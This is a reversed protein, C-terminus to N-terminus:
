PKRVFGMQDFHKDFSFAEKIGMDWMIVFSVCDTFSFDKDDYREFIDLAKEEVGRTVHAIKVVNSKRIKNSFNISARISIRFCILTLTEDLIYSTTVVEYRTRQLVQERFELANEHYQDSEDELAIFAGTDVFIRPLMM